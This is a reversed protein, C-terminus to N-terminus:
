VNPGLAAEIAGLADLMPARAGRLVQDMMDAMPGGDDFEPHNRVLDLAYRLREIEIDRAALEGAIHSKSHLGERTMADVHRVYHQGQAVHDRKQYLGLQGSFWVKAPTSETTM